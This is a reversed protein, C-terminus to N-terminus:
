IRIAMWLMSEEGINRFCFACPLNFRARSNKGWSWRISSLRDVREGRSFSSASLSNSDILWDRRVIVWATLESLSAIAVAEEVAVLSSVVAAASAKAVGSVESSTLLRRSFTM